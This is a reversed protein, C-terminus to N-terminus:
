SDTNYTINFILYLSNNNFDDVYWTSWTSNNNMYHANLYSTNNQTHWLGGNRQAISMEIPKSCTCFGDNQGTKHNAPFPLGDIQAISGDPISSATKNIFAINLYVMNGIKTYSGVGDTAGTTSADSRLRPTFTGEEYDKLVENINSAGTGDATASFNIGTGATGMLINGNNVKIDGGARTEFKTVFSGSTYSQHYITGDSAAKIAWKDLNDDGQDATLYLVANSGEADPKIEIGDSTTLLQKIGNHFIDVSGDSQANIMYEDAAINLMQVNGGILRLNGTGNDKVYSHSADHFIELDNGTGFRAKVNDNFDVGTAGGVGSAADEFAPPSGAGTSTLVQGDSGPGVYSPNGSADFTLIQGDTGAKIEALGIADNAMNAEAVTDDAIKAGTVADDALANTKIKTLSNAM